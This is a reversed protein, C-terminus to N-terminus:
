TCKKHHQQPNGEHLILFIRPQSSYGQFITVRMQLAQCTESIHIKYIYTHIYLEKPKTYNLLLKLASMLRSSSFKLNFDQESFHIM